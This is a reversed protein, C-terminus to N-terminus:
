KGSKKFMELRDRIEKKTEEDIQGGSVLLAVAREQVEIAKKVDGSKFLAYAYTDLIMPDEDKTLDCARKAIKVAQKYDPKTKYKYEDDVLTWAVQNLNGASDWYFKESIHAGYKSAAPGDGMQCLVEFKFMGVFQEYEPKDKIIQDVTELAKKFDDKQMATVAAEMKESLEAFAKQRAADEKAQQAADFKGAVVKDVISDMEMPHGIWQIQGDKVVFATPIGNQGAAQMWTKAMVAPEGDLAVLYDMKDGMDKVFKEVMAFDSPDQEWVSIGAFVAKGAYKKALDTIHPISTRCPGCWTAWFEVVMVGKNFDKPPEGKIWKAVTIAPAKDGVKLTPGQALASTSYAALGVLSALLTLKRM